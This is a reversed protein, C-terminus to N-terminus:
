VDVVRIYEDLNGLTLLAMEYDGDSEESPPSMTAADKSRMMVAGPMDKSPTGSYLMNVPAATRNPPSQLTLFAVAVAHGCGRAFIHQLTV